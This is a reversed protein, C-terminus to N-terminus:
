SSGYQSGMSAILQKLIADNSGMGGAGPTYANAYQQMANPDIGGQQGPGGIGGGVFNQPQQMMRHALMYMAQDRLPSTALQNSLKPVNTTNYQRQQEALSNAATQAQQQGQLYQGAGQAAGGIAQGGIQLWDKTTMGNSATGNNNGIGLASGLRSLIGGNDSQGTPDGPLPVASPPLGTNSTKGGIMGGLAGLVKGGAYTGAAQTVAQGVGKGSGMAGLGQGLAAGISTGVGPVISGIAAGIPAGINGLHIGTANSLWSM